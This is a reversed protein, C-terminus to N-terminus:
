FHGEPGDFGREIEVVAFLAEEDGVTGVDGEAIVVGVGPEETKRRRACDGSCWSEKGPWGNSKGVM